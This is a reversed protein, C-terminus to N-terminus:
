ANPSSPKQKPSCNEFLFILAGSAYFSLLSRGGAEYMRVWQLLWRACPFRRREFKQGARPTRGVDQGSEEIERVRDELSPLITQVARESRTTEGRAEAELFVNACTTQWLIRSRDQAPLTHLYNIDCRLKRFATQDSFAGRRLRVDPRSLLKLFEDGSFSLCISPDDLRTWISGNRDSKLLRHEAGAILLSDIESVRFHRTM